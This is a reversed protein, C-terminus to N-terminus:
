IVREQVSRTDVKTCSVQKWNRPYDPYRGKLFCSYVFRSPDRISEGSTRRRLLLDLFSRTGPSKTLGARQWEKVV